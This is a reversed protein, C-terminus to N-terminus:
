RLETALYAIVVFFALEREEESQNSLKDQYDAVLKAFDSPISTSMLLSKAITGENFADRISALTEPFPIEGNADEEIGFEAATKKLASALMAIRINARPRNMGQGQLYEVMRARQKVDFGFVTQLVAKGASPEEPLASNKTTSSGSTKAELSSVLGPERPENLDFDKPLMAKLKYRALTLKQNSASPTVVFEEYADIDPKGDQRNILTALTESDIKSSLLKSSGDAMVVPIVEYPLTGLQDLGRSADFDLLSPKTWEVATAAGAAICLVTLQRPDILGSLGEKSTPDTLAKDGGVLHISTFGKKGVNRTAFESPMEGLLGRNTPSDWPQALDFKGYLDRYGIYPLISVRWSLNRNKATALGFATPFAKYENTFSMLGGAIKHLQPLELQLGIEASPPSSPLDNFLSSEGYALKEAHRFSNLEKVSLPRSASMMHHRLETGLLRIRLESNMANNEQFRFLSFQSTIGMQRICTAQALNIPSTERIARNSLLSREQSDTIRLFDPDLLEIEKVLSEFREDEVVDRAIERLEERLAMSPRRNEVRAQSIGSWIKHGAFVLLLILLVGGISAGAVKLALLAPAPQGEADLRHRPKSTVVPASWPSTASKRAPAAPPLDGRMEVPTNHEADDFDIKGPEVAPAPQVRVTSNPMQSSQGAPRSQHNPGPPRKATPPATPKSEVVPRPDNPPHKVESDLLKTTSAPHEPQTLEAILVAEGGQSQRQPSTFRHKCKPCTLPKGLLSEDKILLRVSCAPCNLSTSM